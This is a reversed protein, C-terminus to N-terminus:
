RALLAALQQRLATENAPAAELAESWLTRAETSDGEAALMKGLNMLLYGRVDARPENRSVAMTLADKAERHRGLKLYAASLQNCAISTDASEGRLARQFYVIASDYEAHDFYSTGVNLLAPGFRPSLRVAKRYLSDAVDVFGDRFAIIGLENYPPGYTPDKEISQRLLDEKTDDDSQLMAREHLNAAETRRAETRSGQFVNWGVLVAGVVVTSVIAITLAM